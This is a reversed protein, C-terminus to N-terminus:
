AGREHRRPRALATPRPDEPGQRDGTLLYATRLLPASRAAVFSGFAEDRGTLDM